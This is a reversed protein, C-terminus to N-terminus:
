HECWRMRHFRRAVQQAAKLNISYASLPVTTLYGIRAMRAPEQAYASYDTILFVVTLLM